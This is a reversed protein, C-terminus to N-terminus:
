RSRYVNSKETIRYCTCYKDELFVEYAFKTEIDAKREPTCVAVLDDPHISLISDTLSVPNGNKSFAKSYYILHANYGWEYIKLTDQPPSKFIQKMFPGYKLNVDAAEGPKINAYSLV